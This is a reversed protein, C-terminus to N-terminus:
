SLIMKRTRDNDVYTFLQNGEWKYIGQLYQFITILDGLLRRNKLSFLGLEKLRNESSLHALGQTMRMARRQVMELLEV